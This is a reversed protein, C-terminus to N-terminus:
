DVRPTISRNRNYLIQESRTRTESSSRVFILRNSDNLFCLILMKSACIDCLTILYVCSIWKPTNLQSKCDACISNDGQSLIRSKFWDLDLEEEKKVQDPLNYVFYEDKNPDQDVSISNFGNSIRSSTFKPRLQHLENILLTMSLSKERKPPIPPAIQKPTPEIEGQIMESVSLYQSDPEVVQKYGECFENLSLYHGIEITEDLGEERSPSVLEVPDLYINNDFFSRTSSASCETENSKTEENSQTVYSIPNTYYANLSTTPQDISPKNSSEYSVIISLRKRSERPLKVPLAPLEM